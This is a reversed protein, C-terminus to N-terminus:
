PLVLKPDSPVLITYLTTKATYETCKCTRRDACRPVAADSDQFKQVFFIITKELDQRVSGLSGPFETESDIQRDKNLFNFTIIGIINPIGFCSM